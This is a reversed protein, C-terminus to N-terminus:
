LGSKLKGWITTLKSEPEVALLGTARELGDEMIAKIDDQELPVDFLAVEDLLGECQHGGNSGDGIRMRGPDADLSPKPYAQQGVEEGDTYIVLGAKEGVVGALHHWGAGTVVPGGIPGEWAGPAGKTLSFQLTQSDKDVALLYNRPNQGRMMISQWRTGQSPELNAWAVITLEELTISKNSKVEVYVDNGNFELAQGFKGDRWKKPGAITGDNGSKSTDKAVNGAGEEFLWMGVVTDPDIKALAHPSVVLVLMVAFSLFTLFLKSNM